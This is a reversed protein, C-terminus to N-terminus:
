DRKPYPREPIFFPPTESEPVLGYKEAIAYSERDIVLPIEEMGYDRMMAFTAQDCGRIIVVPREGNRDEIRIAHASIYKRNRANKVASEYESLRGKGFPDVYGASTLKWIKDVEKTKLPRWTIGEEKDEELFLIREKM